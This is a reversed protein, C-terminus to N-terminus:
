YSKTKNESLSGIFLRNGLYLADMGLKKLKWVKGIQRQMKWTINKSWFIGSKEENIRLGSWTCFNHLVVKIEHLEKEAARCYCILDDAFFLHSIPPANPAIRIGHISGEREKAVLLRSLM